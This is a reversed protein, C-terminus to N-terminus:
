EKRFAAAIKYRNEMFLKVCLDILYPHILTGLVGVVLLTAIGGTMGGFFSGAYYLLIPFAFIPIGILYHAAGFGSMSMSNGENPDIRLSNFSALFMYAFISFSTNIFLLATNFLVIKPTIFLYPLTLLYTILCSLALIYYKARFIDRITNGRSLLLDFHMSNWSLMLQGHNLAIMGTMMLGFVLYTIAAGEGEDIRLFLPFFLVLLSILLYSRARKSRFLLRLELDMLKGARGFRNSFFGLSLNPVYSETSAGTEISLCRKFYGSLYLYMAIGPLLALPWLLANSFFVLAVKEMYPFLSIVGKFELFIWGLLLVLVILPAVRNMDSAKSVWFAVYNSALIIGFVLFIFGLSETLGYHPYVEVLFFPIALFLPLFSFFSLLSRRLLYNIMDKKRVPLLLYPKVSLTPFKQLFYRSIVDLPFYFLLFAGGIGIVEREPFFEKIIEGAVLGLVLFSIVLYLGFFALMITQLVNQTLAPSRRFSLWAHRLFFGSKM